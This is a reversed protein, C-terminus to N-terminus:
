LLCTDFALTRTSSLTSVPFQQPQFQPPGQFQGQQGFQPAAQVVAALVLASLIQFSSFMILTLHSPVPSLIALTPCFLQKLLVKSPCSFLTIVKPLLFRFHLFCSEREDLRLFWGGAMMANRYGDMGARNLWGPSSSSSSSSSPPSPFRPIMLHYRLAAGVSVATILSVHGSASVPAHRSNM